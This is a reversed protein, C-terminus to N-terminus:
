LEKIEKECREIEIETRGIKQSRKIEMKSWRKWSLRKEDEEELLM